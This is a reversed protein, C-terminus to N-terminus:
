PQFWSWGALQFYSPEGFQNNPLAIKGNPQIERGLSDTERATTVDDPVSFTRLRMTDLGVAEAILMFPPSEQTKPTVIPAGRLGGVTHNTYIIGACAQDQPNVTNLVYIRTHSAPIYLRNSSADFTGQETLELGVDYVGHVRGDTVEIEYIK